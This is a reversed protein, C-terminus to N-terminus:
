QVLIRGEYNGSNGFYSVAAVAAASYSRYYLRRQSSLTLYGGAVARGDAAM